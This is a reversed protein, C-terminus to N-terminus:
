KCRNYRYEPFVIYHHSRWIEKWSWRWLHRMSLKFDIITLSNRDHFYDAFELVLSGNEGVKWPFRTPLYKGAVVSCIIEEHGWRKKGSVDLHRIQIAGMERYWADYFFLIFDIIIRKLNLLQKTNHRTGILLMSVISYIFASLICCKGEHQPLLFSYIYLWTRVAKM